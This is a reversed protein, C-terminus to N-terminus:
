NIGRIELMEVMLEGADFLDRTRIRERQRAADLTISEVLKQVPQGFRGPASLEPGRRVGEEILRVERGFLALEHAPEIPAAHDMVADAEEHEFLEAGHNADGIEVDVRRHPALRKGLELLRAVSRARQIRHGAGVRRRRLRRPRVAQSLMADIIGGRSMRAATSKESDERAARVKAARNALCASAASCTM